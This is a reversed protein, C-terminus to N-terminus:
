RQKDLAQTLWHGAWAHVGIAHKTAQEKTPFYAGSVIATTNRANVTSNANHLSLCSKSLCSKSLCSKILAHGTEAILAEPELQMGQNVIEPLADCMAALLHGAPVSGLVRSGDALIVAEATYGTEVLFRAAEDYLPEMPRVPYIDLDISWGGYEYLANHRIVDSCEGMNRANKYAYLAAKDLAPLTDNEWLMFDYDPNLDIWRAMNGPAYEPMSRPGVWVFHLIKPILIKPILIKPILIKPILIKPIM